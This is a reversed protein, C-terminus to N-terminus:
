VLWGKRLAELWMVVYIMCATSILTSLFAFYVLMRQKMKTEKIQGLDIECLGFRLNSRGKNGTKSGIVGTQTRNPSFYSLDVEM